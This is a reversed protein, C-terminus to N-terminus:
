AEAVKRIKQDLQDFPEPEWTQVSAYDDGVQTVSPHSIDEVDWDVVVFEAFPNQSYIDQVIGNDIVIVTKHPHYIKEGHSNVFDGNHSFCKQIEQHLTKGVDLDCLLDHRENYSKQHLLALIEYLNM